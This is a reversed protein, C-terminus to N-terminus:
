RDGPVRSARRPREAQLDGQPRGRVVGGDVSRGGRHRDGLGPEIAMASGPDVGGLLETVIATRDAAFRSLLELGAEVSLKSATGLLRALVPYAALFAALGAPTRLRAAFDGPQPRTLESEITQRAIDALQRGVASVYADALGPVAYGAPLGLAAAALQERIGALFPRLPVLHPDQAGAASGEAAADQATRSAVAAVANEVADAWPPRPAQGAADRERATLAALWWGPGLQSAAPDGGPSLDSKSM